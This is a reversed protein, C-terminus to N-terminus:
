AKTPEFGVERVVKYKKTIISTLIIKTDQLEVGATYVPGVSVLVAPYGKFIIYGQSTPPLDFVLFYTLSSM